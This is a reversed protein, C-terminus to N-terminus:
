GTCRMAADRRNCKCCCGQSAWVPCCKVCCSYLKSRTPDTQNRVYDSERQFYTKAFFSINNAINLKEGATVAQQQLFQYQIDSIAQRCAPNVPRAPMRKVLGAVRIAPKASWRLLHRGPKNQPLPIAPNALSSAMWAACIFVTCLPKGTAEPSPCVTYMLVPAGHEAEQVM